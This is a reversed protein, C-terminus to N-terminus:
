LAERAAAADRAMAHAGVGHGDREHALTGNRHTSPRGAAAITLSLSNCTSARATCASLSTRRHWGVPRAVDASRSARPRVLALVSIRPVTGPQAAAALPALVLSLTLIVALGILRM